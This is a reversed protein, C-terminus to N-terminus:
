WGCCVGLSRMGPAEAAPMASPYTSLWACPFCRPEPAQTPSHPGLFRNPPSSFYSFSWFHTQINMKLPLSMFWLWMLTSSSLVPERPLSCPAAHRVKARKVLPLLPQPECSAVCSSQCVTETRCVWVSTACIFEQAALADRSCLYGVSCLLWCSAPLPYDRAERRCLSFRM